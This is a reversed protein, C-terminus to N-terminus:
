KIYEKLVEMWLKNKDFEAYLCARIKQLIEWEKMLEENQTIVYEDSIKHSIEELSYYAEILYKKM